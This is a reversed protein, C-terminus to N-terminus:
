AGLRGLPYTRGRYTGDSAGETKDDLGVGGQSVAAVMFLILVGRMGYYTFREWMETLFLTALGRPQGFLTRAPAAAATADAVQNMVPRPNKQRPSGTAATQVVRPPAPLQA